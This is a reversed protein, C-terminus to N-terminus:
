VPGPPDARGSKASSRRPAGAALVAIVGVAFAALGGARVLFAADRATAALASTGPPMQLVALALGVAAVLYLWGRVSAIARDGVGGEAGGTGWGIVAVPIALWVGAVVVAAGLEAGQHLSWAIVAGAAAVGGAAARMVRSAGGSLM